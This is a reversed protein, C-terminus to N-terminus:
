PAPSTTTSSGSDSVCPRRGASRSRRSPRGASLGVKDAVMRAMAPHDGTLMLVRIGEFSPARAEPVEAHEPDAIGVLGLFELRTEATAMPTPAVPNVRHALVLVRLGERALSEVAVLMAARRGEDFPVTEVVQRATICLPLLSEPSGKTLVEFHGSSIRHVISM